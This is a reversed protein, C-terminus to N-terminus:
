NQKIVYISLGLDSYSGSQTKVNKLPVQSKLHFGVFNGRNFLFGKPFIINKPIKLYIKWRSEKTCLAKTRERSMMYKRFDRSNNNFLKPFGSLFQTFVQWKM